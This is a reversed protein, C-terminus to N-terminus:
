TNSLRMFNIAADKHFSRGKPCREAMDLVSAKCMRYILVCCKVFARVSIENEVVIDRLDGSLSSALDENVKRYDLGADYPFWVGYDHRYNIYNRTQSLWNGDQCNNQKMCATLQNVLKAFSDKDSSLASGSSYNAEVMKIYKFFEFWVLEHSKKSARTFNFELNRVDFYAVYEGSKIFSDNGGIAVRKVKVLDLAEFYSPAFGAMRLLCNAAYFAAYYVKIAVWSLSKPLEEIVKAHAISECAGVAMRSVDFSIAKLPDQLDFATLTFGDQDARAITYKQAQLWGKVGFKSKTNIQHLGTVWTARLADEVCSM